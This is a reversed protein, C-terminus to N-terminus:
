GLFIKDHKAKFRGNDMITNNNLFSNRINVIISILDVM